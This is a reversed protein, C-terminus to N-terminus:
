IPQFGVVMIPNLGRALSVTHFDWNTTLDLNSTGRNHNINLLDRRWDCLSARPLLPERHRYFFIALVYIDRECFHPNKNSSM